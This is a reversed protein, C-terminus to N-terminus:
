GTQQKLSRAIEFDPEIVRPTILLILSSRQTEVEDGRSLLGQRSNGSSRHTDLGAVVLTEGSRLLVPILMARTELEPLQIVIDEAGADEPFQKISKIRTTRLSTHLMLQNTDPLIKPLMNLAIGDLATGPIMRTTPSGEVHVVERRELYKREDGFFVPVPRGNLGRIVSSTLKTVRDEGAAAEIVGSLDVGDSSNPKEYKLSIVSQNLDGTSELKILGNDHAFGIFGKLNFGKKSDGSHAIEYLDVSILVQSALQRNKHRIWDDIKDLATPTDTASIEGSHTSVVVKGAPSLLSNVTAITETWFKSDDLKVNVRDQSQVDAGGQSRVSGSLGITGTWTTSPGPFHLTWHRTETKFIRIRSKSWKWHVDLQASLTDLLDLASGFWVLDEIKQPKLEPSVEIRLGTEASVVRGIDEVTVPEAYNISLTTQLKEPAAFNQVEFRIPSRPGLYPHAVEEVTKREADTEAKDRREDFAAQIESERDKATQEVDRHMACGSSFIITWVLLHVLLNRPRNM